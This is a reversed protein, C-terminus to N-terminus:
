AQRQHRVQGRAKAIQRSLYRDLYIPQGAHDKSRRRAQSGSEVAQKRYVKIGEESAESSQM